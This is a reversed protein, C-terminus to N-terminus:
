FPCFSLSLIFYLLWNANETREPCKLPSSHRGVQGMKRKGVTRYFIAERERSGERQPLTNYPTYTAERSGWKMGKESGFHGACSPSQPGLVVATVVALRGAPCLEAETNFPM